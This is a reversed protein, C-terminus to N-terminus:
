TSDNKIIAALFDHIESRNIYTLIDSKQLTVRREEETHAWSCHVLEEIFFECCKSMLASYDCSILKVDEDSKIIKKIRALPFAPYRLQDAEMNIIRDMHVKIRSLVETEKEQYVIKKFEVERNSSEEYDM